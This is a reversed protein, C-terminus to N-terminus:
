IENKIFNFGVQQCWLYAIHAGALNYLILYNRTCPSPYRSFTSYRIDIVAVGLFPIPECAFRYISGTNVYDGLNPITINESHTQQMGSFVPSELVQKHVALSEHVSFRQCYGASEGYSKQSVTDCRSDKSM